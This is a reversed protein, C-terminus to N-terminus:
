AAGARHRISSEVMGFRVPRAWEAGTYWAAARRLGQDALGDVGFVTDSDLLEEGRVFIHTVLTRYGPATVMFHLHSARMPSRGTAALM